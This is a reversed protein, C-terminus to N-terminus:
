SLPCGYISCRKVFPRDTNQQLLFGDGRNPDIAVAGENFPM